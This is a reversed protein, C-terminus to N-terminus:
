PVALDRLAGLSAFAALLVAAFAAPYGVSLHSFRPVVRTLAGAGLHVCLAICLPPSALQLTLSAFRVGSSLGIHRLTDGAILAGPQVFSFTRAFALVMADFGGLAFFAATFALTWLGGLGAPAVNLNPVSARLGVYDDLIRAAAGAAEAVLTATLGFAAGVALEGAVLLLLTQPDRAVNRPLSPAIALAVAFAFGARMMMPVNQRSLGPARAFFGLARAFALWLTVNM